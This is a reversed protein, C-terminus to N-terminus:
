QTDKGDYSFSLCYYMKFIPKVQPMGYINNSDSCLYLESKQVEQDALTKRCSHNTHM